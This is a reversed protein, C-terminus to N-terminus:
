IGAPDSMSVLKADKFNYVMTISYKDTCVYITVSESATLKTTQTKPLDIRIKKGNESPVAIKGESSVQADPFDAAIYNKLATWQAAATDGSKLESACFTNLTQNKLDNAPSTVASKQASARVGVVTGAVAGALIAMVAIAIVLEVLTFALKNKFMKKLRM